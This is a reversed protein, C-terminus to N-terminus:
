GASVRCTNSDLVSCYQFFKNRLARRATTLAVQQQLLFVRRQIM